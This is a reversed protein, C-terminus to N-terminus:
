LGTSAGATASSGRANFATLAGAFAPNDLDPMYIEWFPAAAAKGLMAQLVTLPDCPTVGGNDRCSRDGTIPAGEQLAVPLDPVPSAYGPKGDGRASGPGAGAAASHGQCRRGTRRGARGRPSHNHSVGEKKMKRAVLPDFMAHAHRRAARLVDNALTGKPRGDPHCGVWARCDVCDWIPGHDERYVHASSPCFRAPKLCYQCFVDVKPGESMM